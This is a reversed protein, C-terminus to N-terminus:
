LAPKKLELTIEAPVGAKLEFQVDAVAGAYRAKVQYLGHYGRLSFRGSKDTRGEAQTWWAEKILKRLREYAPKPTCDARLMGGGPVWAGVDSFDWWSVAEVAPHAFCVEYFQTAYEAQQEETWDGRWIAGQIRKGNSPPTFETIHIPKGLAAYRDLIARVRDLPFAMTIPAHAQIGIADFPVQDRVAQDLFRYFDPHGEFLIGYENVILRAAPDAERAWAHAPMLALGPVNVPENVVEWNAIRGAYRSMIDKVRAHQVEEPPFRDRAWPPMGPPTLWLLTHGKATIGHEQCWALVADTQAYNPQGQTPEYLAWYFPLTAYNFLAAFRDEYAHNLHSEPFQGWGCLNAGFLFEHRQQAVSIAADPAPRGKEDKVLVNIMGTRLAEIATRSEELVAKERREGDANWATVDAREPAPAGEPAYVTISELLLNLDEPTGDPDNSFEVGLAHVAETLHVDFEYDRAEGSDATRSEGPLRDLSLTMVPWTADRPVARARVVVKYQGPAAFRFFDVVMGNEYLCGDRALPQVAADRTDLRYEAAGISSPVGGMLLVIILFRRVNRM